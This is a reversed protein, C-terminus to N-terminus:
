KKERLSAIVCDIAHKPLGDKKLNMRIGEEKEQQLESDTKFLHINEELSVGMGKPAKIEEKPPSPVVFPLEKIVGGPVIEEESLHVTVDWGDESPKYQIVPDRYMPM